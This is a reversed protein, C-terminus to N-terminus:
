LRLVTPITGRPSSAMDRTSRDAHRESLHRESQGLRAGWDEARGIVCRQPEHFEYTKGALKGNKVTLRVSAPM